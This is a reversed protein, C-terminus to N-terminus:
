SGTIKNSLNKYLHYAVEVATSSIELDKRAVITEVLFKKYDEKM